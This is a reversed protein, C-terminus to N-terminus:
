IGIFVLFIMTFPTGGQVGEGNVPDVRSGPNTIDKYKKKKRKEERVESKQRRRREKDERKFSHFCPKDCDYWLLKDIMIM